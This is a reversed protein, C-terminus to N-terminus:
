VDARAGAEVVTLSTASSISTEARSGHRLEERM